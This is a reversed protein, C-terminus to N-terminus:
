EIRVEFKWGTPLPAAFFEGLTCCQMDYSAVLSALNCEGILPKESQTKTEGKRSAQSRGSAAKPVVARTCTSM